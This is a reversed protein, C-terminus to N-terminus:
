TAMVAARLDQIPRQKAAFRDEIHDVLEFEGVKDLMVDEGLISELVIAAAQWREDRSLNPLENGKLLVEHTGDPYRLLVFSWSSADLSVAPGEARQLEVRYNWDKLQRASYFEWKALSPALAVIQRAKERVERNLNPSVVFQWAKSRGPGIEWSVDSTLHRVRADLENLLPQDLPDLALKDAINAFWDWFESIKRTKESRM